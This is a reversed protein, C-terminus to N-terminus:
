AVKRRKNHKQIMVKQAEETLNKLTKSQGSLLWTDIESKRFIVRKGSKHFPITKLHTKSYIDSLTPHTPLYEKLEEATFWRDAMADHAKMTDNEQMHKLMFQVIELIKGVTEPVDNQTLNAM